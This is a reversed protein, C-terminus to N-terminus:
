WNRRARRIQRKWPTTKSPATKSSASESPTDDSDPPLTPGAVNMIFPMLSVGLGQAATNFDAQTKAAALQDLGDSFIKLAALYQPKQDAFADPSLVSLRANTQGVIEIWQDALRKPIWKGEIRVFELEGPEENPASFKVTASDWSSRVLTVELDKLGNLIKAFSDDPMLKAFARLQSVFKGGPGALIKGADAKKLRDLDALDSKLLTDLLDALGAWDTAPKETGGPGTARIVSGQGFFEKKTKFVLVVKRVVATTNSWLEADMKEAFSHLLQNLEKQYSKPLLEWLVEPHDNQLGEILALVAGDPTDRNPKARLAAGEKAAPPPGDEKGCGAALCLALTVLLMSRRNLNQM